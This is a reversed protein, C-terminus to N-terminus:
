LGYPATSSSIYEELAANVAERESAHRGLARAQGILADEPNLNTAM